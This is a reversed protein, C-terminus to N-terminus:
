LIQWETINEICNINKQINEHRQRMSILNIGNTFVPNKMDYSIITNDMYDGVDDYRMSKKVKFKLKSYDLLKASDKKKM